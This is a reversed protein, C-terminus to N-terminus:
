KAAEAKAIEAKYTALVRAGDPTDKVWEEVLPAMQRRFKAIDGSPMTTITQGPVGEVAHLGMDTEEKGAKAMRAALPAGTKSDFVKRAEAPLKAYSEKNMLLYNTTQGLPANFYFKAVEHLKYAAVAAWGVIAADVTGRQLSQYLETTALTIPAGGLTEVEQGYTRSSVAVKLGKFDDVSRLPKASVSSTPPFCSFALPHVKEYEDAIVGTAYLQWLAETCQPGTAPIGPLATVSTKKFSDGIMGHLGWGIDAVENLIRDYVNRHGALTGSLFLQVKIAGGTAEEIEKSWPALLGANFHSVPPPPFGLKLTIPDSAKAAFPVAIAAAAILWIANKM